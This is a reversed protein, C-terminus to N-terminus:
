LKDPYEAEEETSFMWRQKDRTVSWPAHVHSEDCAAELEKLEEVNTWISTWKPRLGGWMCAQFKVEFLMKNLVRLWTTNWMHSNTPNEVM